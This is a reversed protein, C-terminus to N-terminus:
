ASIARAQRRSCRSRRSSTRSACPSRSRSTRCVGYGFLDNGPTGFGGLAVNILAQRDVILRFAQRVNVDNFPPRDTRMIFVQYAPSPADIVQIKKASKQAKAQAFDLQSMM